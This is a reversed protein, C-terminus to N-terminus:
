TITNFCTDVSITFIVSIRVKEVRPLSNQENCRKVYDRYPRNIPTWTTNAGKKTIVSMKINADLRQTLTPPFSSSVLISCFFLSLLFFILFRHLNFALLTEQLCLHRFTGPSKIHMLSADLIHRAYLNNPKSQNGWGLLFLPSLLFVYGNIFWDTM